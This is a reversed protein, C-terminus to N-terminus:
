ASSFEDDIADLETGVREANATYDDAHDPDAEALREALGTAAEAMLEPDQWMHPDEDGHDHGDGAGEDHGHDDGEDEHAHDHGHDHGDDTADHDHDTADHDHAAEDFPLLDVLDAVDLAREGGEKAIADDVAPQLGTIFFNVDANHITRIQPPSLELDHPEAGPETLNTVEVHDGGVQVALWELPYIGTVVTLKGDSGEDSATGCGSAAAGVAVGAAILAAVRGSRMDRMM